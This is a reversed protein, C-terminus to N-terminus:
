ICKATTYMLCALGARNIYANSYSHMNLINALLEWLQVWKISARPITLSGATHPPKIVEFHGPVCSMLLAKYMAHMFIRTIRNYVDLKPCANAQQVFQLHPALVRLKQM